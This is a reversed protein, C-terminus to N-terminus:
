EGEEHLEEILKSRLNEMKNMYDRNYPIHVKYHIILDEFADIVLQKEENTLM